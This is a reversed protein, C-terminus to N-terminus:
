YVNYTIKYRFEKITKIARKILPKKEYNKDWDIPLNVKNKLETLLKYGLDSKLHSCQAHWFKKSGCYHYITIPMLTESYQKNKIRSLESPTFNFRPNILKLKEKFIGNLIDQDQYKMKEKYNNMWKIAEQIVDKERWKKLNIVLVGANFYSHKELDITKKYEQNEIDIFIDRCAALYHNNIDINWLESLSGNTLTDVDIYIIKEIDKIYNAINLRAYTALSIYEITKPFISFDKEDIAIFLINSNYQKVIEKLISKNTESIGIDLIYINHSGKNNKLISYLSIALFPAYNNDSSFSINM